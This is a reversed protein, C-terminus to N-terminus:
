GSTHKENNACHGCLGQVELQHNKIIFGSDRCINRLEQELTKNEDFSIVRGCQLCTMHHHHRSFTDTLELKYKWGIQLRQVIGLKEFLSVTRYVSARDTGPCAAILQQMTQPEKGDLAAFVAQRPGTLSQKHSQLYRRLQLTDM